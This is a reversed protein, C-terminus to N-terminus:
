VGRGREAHEAAQKRGDHCPKCLTWVNLPNWFLVPDGRHPRKHDAVLLATNGQIRGCGPMQCTFLDRVFTAIRLRKWRALKYWNRWPERGHGEEDVPRCVLPSLSALPARLTTLRGM